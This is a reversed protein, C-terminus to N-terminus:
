VLASTFVNGIRLSIKINTITKSCKIITNLKGSKTCEIWYIVNM